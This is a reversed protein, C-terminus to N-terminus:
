AEISVVESDDDEGLRLARILEAAHTTSVIVRSFASFENVWAGDETVGSPVDIDIVIADRGAKALVFDKGALNRWTGIAIRGPLHAGPARVGRIWVWPDDTILASTIASRDIVVDHRRLSLAKESATLRIVVRDAHVEIRAMGRTHGKARVDARMWGFNKSM